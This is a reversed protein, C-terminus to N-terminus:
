GRGFVDCGVATGVLAVFCVAASETCTYYHSIYYLVFTSNGIGYTLITVSNNLKLNHARIEDILDQSYSPANNTLMLLGKGPLLVVVEINVLLSEDQYALTETFLVVLQDSGVWSICLNHLITKFWM